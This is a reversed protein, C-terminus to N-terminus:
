NDDSKLYHAKFIEPGMKQIQMDIMAKFPQYLGDFQKGNSMYNCAQAVAELTSLGGEVSTSRVQYQGEPGGALLVTPLSQLFENCLWIRKAKRWTGDIVILMDLPEEAQIEPQDVQWTQAKDGPYLVAVREHTAILEHLEAHDSFDEGVFVDLPSLCLKLIPVTALAQKLESPHQLIVLRCPAHLNVLQECLCVNLPRGCSECLKRPM